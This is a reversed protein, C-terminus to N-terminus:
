VNRDYNLLNYKKNNERKYPKASSHNEKGEKPTFKNTKSWKM